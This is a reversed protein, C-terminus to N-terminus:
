QWNKQYENAYIFRKQTIVYTIVYIEVITSQNDNILLCLDIILTFPILILFSKVRKNYSTYM